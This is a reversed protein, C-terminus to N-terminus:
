KLAEEAAKWAEVFNTKGGAFATHVSHKFVARHADMLGRLAKELAQIRDFDTLAIDCYEQREHPCDGTRCAHLAPDMPGDDSSSKLFVGPCDKLGVFNKRMGCTKCVGNSSFEHNISM